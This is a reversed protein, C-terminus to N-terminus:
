ARARELARASRRGASRKARFSVLGRLSGARKQTEEAADGHRLGVGEDARSAWWAEGRVM